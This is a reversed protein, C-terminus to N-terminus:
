GGAKSAYHRAILASRLASGLGCGVLYVALMVVGFDLWYGFRGPVLRVLAIVVATFVVVALRKFTVIAIGDGRYVVAAWGMALGVVLAAIMWPWNFTLIYFM